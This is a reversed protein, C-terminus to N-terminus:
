RARKEEVQKADSKEGRVRARIQAEIKPLAERAEAMTMGDLVDYEPFTFVGAKKRVALKGKEVRLTPFRRADLRSAELMMSDYPSVTSYYGRMIGPFAYTLCYPDEEVSVDCLSEYYRESSLEGMTDHSESKSSLWFIGEEEKKIRVSADAHTDYCANTPELVLAHLREEKKRSTRVVLLEQSSDTPTEAGMYPGACSLYVEVRKTDSVKLHYTREFEWSLSERDDDGHGREWMKQMASWSSAPKPLRLARQLPEAMAEYAWSKLNTDPLKELPSVRPFLLSAEIAQRDSPSLKQLYVDRPALTAAAMIFREALKARVDKSERENELMGTLQLTCHYLDSGSISHHFRGMTLYAIFEAHSAKQLKAREDDLIGETNCGLFSWWRSVDENNSTPIAGELYQGAVAAELVARVRKEDLKRILLSAEYLAAAQHLSGDRMLSHEMCVIARDLQGSRRALVGLDARFQAILADLEDPLGYLSRDQCWASGKLAELAQKDKGSTILRQIKQISSKDFSKTDQASLHLPAFVCVMAMVAQIWAVRVSGSKPRM